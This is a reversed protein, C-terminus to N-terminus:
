LERCQGINVGYLDISLLLNNLNERRLTDNSIWIYIHIDIFFFFGMLTSFNLAFDNDPFLSRRPQNDTVITPTLMKSVPSSKYRTRSKYLLLGRKGRDAVSWLRCASELSRTIQLVFDTLAQSVLRRFLLGDMWRSVRETGELCPHFSTSFSHVWPRAPVISKEGHVKKAIVLKHM